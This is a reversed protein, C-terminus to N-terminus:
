VREFDDAEADPEPDAGDDFSWDVGEEAPGDDGEAEDLYARWERRRRLQWRVLRWAGYALFAAVALLFWKPVQVFRPLTTTQKGGVESELQVTARFIGLSPLGKLDTSQAASGGPYVTFEKIPYTGAVRGFVDKVVVKGKPRLLREGTNEYESSLTLRHKDAWHPSVYFRSDVPPTEGHRAADLRKQDSSITAKALTGKVPADGPLEVIFIAVQKFQPAIGAGESQVQATRQTATVAFPKSGPKVDKPVKITVLMTGQQGPKLTFSPKELTVWAAAGERVGHRIEVVLDATSGVVQAVDMDFTVPKDTRNHIIVPRQITSGPGVQEGGDAQVTEIREAAPSMVVKGDLGATGRDEVKFANASPVAALPLAALAAALAIALLARRPRPTHRSPTTTV